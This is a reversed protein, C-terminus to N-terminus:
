DKKTSIMKSVRLYGVAVGLLAGCAAGAPLDLWPTFALAVGCLIGIAMSTAMIENQQKKLLVLEEQSLDLREEQKKKRSIVSMIFAVIALGIMIWPMITHVIENLNKEM